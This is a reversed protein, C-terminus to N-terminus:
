QINKPNFLISDKISKVVDNYLINKNVKPEYKCGIKDAVEKLEDVKYHSKSYIIKNPNDINHLYQYKNIYTNYFKEFTVKEIDNQTENIIYLKSEDLIFTDEEIDEFRTKNKAFESLLLNSFMFQTNFCLFHINNYDCLLSLTDLTIDKDFVLNQLIKNKKYYPKNKFIEKNNKLETSINIRYNNIIDFKKYNIFFNLPEIIYYFIWFVSVFINIDKQNQNQNKNQNNKSKTSNQIININKNNNINNNNSTKINYFMYKKLKNFSSYDM